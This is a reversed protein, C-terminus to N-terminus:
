LMVTLYAGYVDMTNRFTVYPRPSGRIRKFSMLLSVLRSIRKYLNWSEKYTLNHLCWEVFILFIHAINLTFVPPWVSCLCFDGASSYIQRHFHELPLLLPFNNKRMFFNFTDATTVNYNKSFPHWVLCSLTWQLSM